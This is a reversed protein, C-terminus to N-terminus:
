GRVEGAGALGPGHGSAVNRAIATGEATPPPEEPKQTAEPARQKRCVRCAEMGNPAKFITLAFRPRKLAQGWLVSCGSNLALGLIRHSPADFHGIVCAAVRSFDLAAWSNDPGLQFWFGNFFFM